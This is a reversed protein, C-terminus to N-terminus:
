PAHATALPAPIGNVAQLTMTLRGRKEEQMLQVPLYDLEPAVWILTDRKGPKKLKLTDFTGLPTEIRERGIFHFVYHKLKGGDAIRYELATRGQQLDYMVALQYLLKDLTGQPIEMTWPDDNITNIVRGRQWDFRMHVHRERRPDGTRDYRYELPRLGQPTVEWHSLERLETKVFWKAYGIPRSHSTYLYTGDELRTLKRKMEGLTLPGSTLVYTADFPTVRPTEQEQAQQAAAVLPHLLLWLLLLPWRM